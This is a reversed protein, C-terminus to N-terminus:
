VKAAPASDRRCGPASRHRNGFARAEGGLDAGVGREHVAPELLRRALRDVHAVRRRPLDDAPDRVGPLGADVPRDDRGLRGERGPARRRDALARRDDLLEGVPQGLVGVLDGPEVGEIGAVRQDRHPGVDGLADVLHVLRGPECELRLALGEGRRIVNL